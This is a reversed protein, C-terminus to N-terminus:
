DRGGTHCWCPAARVHDRPWVYFHYNVTPFVKPIRSHGQVAVGDRGPATTAYTLQLRGWRGGCEIESM